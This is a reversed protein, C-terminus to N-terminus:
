NGNYYFTGHFELWGTDRNDLRARFSVGEVVGTYGTSYPHSNYNSGSYVWLASISTAGKHVRSVARHTASINSRSEDVGIYWRSGTKRINNVGIQYSTTSDTSVSFQAKGDGVVGDAMASGVIAFCLVLATILAILKRM